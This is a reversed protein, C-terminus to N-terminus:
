RQEAAVGGPGPTCPMFPKCAARCTSRSSNPISVSGSSSSRAGCTDAQIVEPGKLVRSERKATALSFSELVMAIFLIGIAILPDTLEEPHRIKHLGQDIAFLSGMTFLMLAVVFSYFYRNRGYGFPHPADPVQKARRGGILLLGQNATDAVSHMAEALMSASGTLAAGAFKAVTIGADAALAALIEKKSGSAAMFILAVRRPHPDGTDVRVRLRVAGAV